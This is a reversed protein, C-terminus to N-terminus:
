KQETCGDGESFPDLRFPGLQFLNTGNLFSGKESRLGFNQCLSGGDGM